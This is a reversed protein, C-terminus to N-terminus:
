RNLNSLEVDDGDVIRLIGVGSVALQLSCWTGWGGMGLVLVRSKKLKEQYKIANNNKDVVSFQLLQRDYLEIEESTLIDSYCSNEDILGYNDLKNILWIADNDNIKYGKMSVEKIIRPITHLGDLKSLVVKVWEPPKKIIKSGGPIEGICIDGDDSLVVNHSRKILPKTIMASIRITIIFAVM